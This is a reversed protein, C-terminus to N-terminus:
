FLQAAICAVFSNFSETAIDITHAVWDEERAIAHGLTLEGGSEILREQHLLLGDQSIGADESEMDEQALREIADGLVLAVEGMVIDLDGIDGARLDIGAGRSEILLGDEPVTWLLQRGHELLHDRTEVLDRVHAGGKLEHIREEGLNGIPVLQLM